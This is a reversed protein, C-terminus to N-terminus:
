CVTIVQWFNQLTDTPLRLLCIKEDLLVSSPMETKMIGGEQKAETIEPLDKCQTFGKMLTM